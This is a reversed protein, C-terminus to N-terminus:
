HRVGYKDAAVSILLVFRTRTVYEFDFSLTSPVAVSDSCFGRFLLSYVTSNTKSSFLNVDIRPAAAACLISCFLLAHCGPRSHLSFTYKGYKM